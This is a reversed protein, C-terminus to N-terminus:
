GIALRMRKYSGLDERQLIVDDGEIHIDDERYLDVTLQSQLSLGSLQSIDLEHKTRLLEVRYSIKNGHKRLTEYFSENDHASNRLNRVMKAFSANCALMLRQLEAEDLPPAGVYDKSKARAHIRKHIIAPDQTTMLVFEMKYGANLLVEIDHAVGGLTVGQLFVVLEGSHPSEKALVDRYEVALLQIIHSITKWILDTASSDQRKVLSPIFFHKNLMDKDLSVMQSHQYKAMEGQLTSSKGIAPPGFLVVVRAM